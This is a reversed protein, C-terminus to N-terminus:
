IYIYIYMSDRTKNECSKNDLEHGVTTVAPVNTLLSGGLTGTRIEDWQAAPNRALHDQQLLEQPWAFDLHNVSKAVQNGIAHPASHLHTNHWPQHFSVWIQWLSSSASAQWSTAQINVQQSPQIPPIQFNLQFFITYIRIAYFINGWKQTLKQPSIQFPEPPEWSSPKIPSLLVWSLSSKLPNSLREFGRLVEWVCAFYPNGPIQSFRLQNPTM